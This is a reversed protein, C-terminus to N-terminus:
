GKLLEDWGAALEEPSAQLLMEQYRQCSDRLECVARFTPSSDFSQEMSLSDGLPVPVQGCCLGAEAYIKLCREWFKEGAPLAFRQRLKGPFATGENGAAAESWARYIEGLTDRSPLALNLLLENRKRDAGSYLLYIQIGADGPCNKFFPELLKGSLPLDYLVLARCGTPLASAARKYNDRGSSLFALPPEAPLQQKLAAKRRKTGVFITAPTTRNDKFLEMLSALRNRQGRQDIVTVRGCSFKDGRRLDKLVMDLVPQDRYHGERLTFALDFRRGRNLSPELAAASFFIPAASHGGRTLNLKLHKRDSGVLRWSQLEWGRSCFLPLPNGTGFPELQALQRALDLGIEPPQLVTDLELMPCLQEKKLRPAAYRNLKDRLEVVHAEKITFGAAQAHGGFRELLPTCSSLAATINFGPISRASGRGTGDDLGILVVPRYFREVLRSAVIGIVGHAWGAGALTIVPEGGARQDEALMAEAEELIQMETDRRQRNTRHLALALRKARAEDQELLLRIAPDAEGLRGAANLPPALIFTLAYSDIQGPQLDAAEALAQLGIRPSRKLQELGCAVLVRNEGLLPVVDAATGLAVLDLLGEPFPAGAREMLAAALKFAIGVGSLEKFPYPCDEQLPNLVAVAGKLETFPQHHDTVILDLGLSRACDAEAAANTGCDVTILLDAGNAAVQELAERHLGYGERFRSPLYFDVAAAGLMRLAEVLLAAASIGDVDYDGHVVIKQGKKLATGIREVAGEMGKMLWPSHLQELSPYLFARAASASKIGRHLLVRAVAPLIGLEDALAAAEETPAPAPGGWRKQSLSM